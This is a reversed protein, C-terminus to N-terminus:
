DGYKRMYFRRRNSSSDHKVRIMEGESCLFEAADRIHSLAMTDYVGSRESAHGMLDWALEIAKERYDPYKDEPIM